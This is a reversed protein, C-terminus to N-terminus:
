GERRYRRHLWLVLSLGAAVIFAVNAVSSALVFWLELRAPQFGRGLGAFTPGVFLSMWRDGLVSVLWVPAAVIAAILLFRSWRGLRTERHFAARARALGEDSPAFTLVPEDIDDGVVSWLAYGTEDRTLVYYPSREIVDFTPEPGM